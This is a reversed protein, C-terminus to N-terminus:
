NIFNANTTIVIVIIYRLSESHPDDHGPTPDRERETTAHTQSFFSQHDNEPTIDGGEKHRGGGRKRKERHKVDALVMPSKLSPSRWKRGTNTKTDQTDTVAENRAKLQTQM